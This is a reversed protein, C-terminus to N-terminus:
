KKKEDKDKGPKEAEKDEKKEEKAEEGEKAGEEKAEEGEEGEEAEPAEVVEEVIMTVSVVPEEPDELLNVGEPMPVDKLHLVDGIKLETVDIKIEDPISTPLCEVEVDKMMHNLMGGEQDVGFAKGELVIAVTIAIEKDMSVEYFDVHLLEKKVPKSQFERVIVNCERKEAGEINLQFITNDGRNGSLIKKLDKEDFSLSLTEAGGYVVGPIFGEKRLKNAEEKGTKDRKKANLVLEEM